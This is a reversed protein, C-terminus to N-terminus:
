PIYTWSVLIWLVRCLAVSVSSPMKAVRRVWFWQCITVVDVAEAVGEEAPACSTLSKYSHNDTDHLSTLRLTNDHRLQSCAPHMCASTSVSLMPVTSHRFASLRCAAAMMTDQSARDRSCSNKRPLM